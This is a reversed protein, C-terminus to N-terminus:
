KRRLVVHEMLMALVLGMVFGNALLPQLLPHLAQRAQAPMFTVVMGGILATGMVLGSPWDVPTGDRTVLLLAAYVTSAMLCFLVAGVVPAPLLGVLALGGPWFALVLVLGAAPLLTWRSASQSAILVGPSVSYTVPGPLGWLGALLGGLGSVLVARNSRGLWGPRGRRNAPRDGDRAGVMPLLSGVTALENATLALYCLVFAAIVGPDLALSSPLLSPPTWPSLGAAPWAPAPALGLLYYAASGVLMGLLLVSSSVLGKLRHQAWLMAGVLAMAFLFPGAVAAGATHAAPPFFLDRMTPGLSIVILLLTSSLVPPTYLRGLRGALGTLGLLATLAGGLAMAGCVAALGAGLTALVGVMLVASPGVLGPLRHGWCVQALQVLAGMILLRQMFAVRGAQDLGQALAVVEGLVLLGPLLVVLWQLSLVALALPPPWADLGYRLNLKTPQSPM